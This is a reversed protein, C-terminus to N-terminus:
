RAVGAVVPAAGIGQGAALRAAHGAPAV